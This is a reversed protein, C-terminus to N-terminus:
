SRVDECKGEPPNEMMSTPVFFGMSFVDEVPINDGNDEGIGKYRTKMTIENIVPVTM